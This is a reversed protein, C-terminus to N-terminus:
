AFRDAGQRAQREGLRDFAAHAEAPFVSDILPRLRGDALDPVVEREFARVAHAKEELPRARLVTGRLSVRRAMLALLPM